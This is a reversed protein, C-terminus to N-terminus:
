DKEAYFKIDECVEFSLDVNVSVSNYEPPEFSPYGTGSIPEGIDLKDEASKSFYYNNAALNIINKIDEPNVDNPIEVSGFYVVHELDFDEDTDDLQVDISEFDSKTHLLNNIDDTLKDIADDIIDDIESSMMDEIDSRSANTEDEDYYTDKEVDIKIEFQYCNSSSNNELDENISQENNLYKEILIM